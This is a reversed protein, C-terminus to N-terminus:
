EVGVVARSIFGYSVRTANRVPDEYVRLLMYEETADEGRHAKQRGNGCWGLGRSEVLLYLGWGCM